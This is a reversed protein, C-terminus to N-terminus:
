NKWSDEEQRSFPKFLYGEEAIGWNFFEILNLRLGHVVGGMIGLAFNLLHGVILVGICLLIGIGPVNNLLDFAIQNFTIALQTSSLGLAFLRMYSLVDGFGRSLGACAKLGDFIRRSISKLDNGQTESSYFLIATLGSVVLIISAGQAYTSTFSVQEILWYVYCGLFLCFWGLHARTHTSQQAYWAASGHALLLHVVGISISLKIMADFDNLDIIALNRIFGYDPPAQGFWSGVLIGWIIAFISICLGLPFLWATKANRTIKGKFILLSTLAVLAYGADSLIMAFFFSFSFFLIPSPDWARYGPVQFFEIIKKAGLLFDPTELLTPPQETDRVAEEFWALTNEECYQHLALQRHLPLWGQLIFLEGKKLLGAKAQTLDACEITSTIRKGLLPLWRTLSVRQLDLEELQLEIEELAQKLSKLSKVGARVRTLPIQRKSPESDSLVLVYCTGSFEKVLQWPLGSKNFLGLQSRPVEYFWFRIGKMSELPPFEFDGWVKRRQIFAQLEDRQDFLVQRQSKINLTQTVLEEIKIQKLSHSPKMRYRTDMLFRLAEHTKVPLQISEDDDIEKKQLPILHLAGLSQLSYLINETENHPGIITFKLVQTIAM